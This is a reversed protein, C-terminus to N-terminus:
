VTWLLCTLFVKNTQIGIKASRQSSASPVLDPFIIESEQLLESSKVM